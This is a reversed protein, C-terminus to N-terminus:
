TERASEQIGIEVASVDIFLDARAPSMEELIHFFRAPYYTVAHGVVTFGVELEVQALDFAEQIRFFTDDEGREFEIVFYRWEEEDALPVRKGDPRLPWEIQWVTRGQPFFGGPIKQMVDRITTREDATARRLIHGPALEFADQGVLHWVNIVWAYQKTPRPVEPETAVYIFTIQGTASPRPLGAPVSRLRIPSVVPRRASSPAWPYPGLPTRKAGAEVCGCTELSTSVRSCRRPVRPLTAHPPPECGSM